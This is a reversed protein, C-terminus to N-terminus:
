VRGTAGGACGGSRTSACLASVVVAGGGVANEEAFAGGGKGRRWRRLRGGDLLIVKLGRCRVFFAHASAAATKAIKSNKLHKKPRFGGIRLGSESNEHFILGLPLNQALDSSDPDM